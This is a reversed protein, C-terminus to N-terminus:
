RFSEIFDFIGKTIRTGKNSIKDYAGNTHIAVSLYDDELYVPSGSQGGTTDITYHIKYENMDFISGSMQWMQKSKEGPYGSITVDTNNLSDLQWSAGFYGTENGINKDLEILGWDFNMNHNKTFNEPVHIKVAKAEGFPMSSGNRGPYIIIETPWGGLDNAYICHGATMAVNPGYMWATGVTVVGNPWVTRLSAIASYPFSTTNDVRFRDDTGIISKKPEKDPKQDPIFPNSYGSTKDGPEAGEYYIEKSENNTILDKSIVNMEEDNTPLEKASVMSTSFIFLFMVISLLSATIKRQKTKFM